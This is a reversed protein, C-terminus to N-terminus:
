PVFEVNAVKVDTGVRQVDIRMRWAKSEPQSAGANMTEVTVAVLAQAGEGTVSELGAMTVTGTTTSQVQTVVDIFPQARESFDDHFTGTASDLIREVDDDVHKWDITTLNVAGQRGAQLYQARQDVAQQSTHLQMSLWGVLGGLAVIIAAAAITALRKPSVPRRSAEAMDPNAREDSAPVEDGSIPGDPADGHSLREGIDTIM